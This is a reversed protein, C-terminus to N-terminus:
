DQQNSFGSGPGDEFDTKPEWAQRAREVKEANTQPEDGEPYLPRSVQPIFQTQEAETLEEGERNLNERLDENKREEQEARITATDKEYFGPEQGESKFLNGAHYDPGVRTIQPQALATKRLRAAEIIEQLEKDEKLRQILVMKEGKSLESWDGTEQAREFKEEIEQEFESRHEDREEEWERELQFEKDRYAKRVAKLQEKPVDFTKQFMREKFIHLEGWVKVIWVDKEVKLFIEDEGERDAKFYFCPMGAEDQQLDKEFELAWQGINHSTVMAAVAHLDRPGYDATVPNFNDFDVSEANFAM